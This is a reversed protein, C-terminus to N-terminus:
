SSHGLLFGLDTEPRDSGAPIKFGETGALEAAEAVM